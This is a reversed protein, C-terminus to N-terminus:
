LIVTQDNAVNDPKDIRIESVRVVYAKNAAPTFRLLVNEGSAVMNMARIDRRQDDATSLNNYVNFNIRGDFANAGVNFCSYKNDTTNHIEVFYKMSTFNTYNKTSITNETPSAAASIETRTANLETDGIVLRTINSTNEDAFESIGVMTTLTQITVATNANPTYRLKIVGANQIIEFEGVDEGSDMNGFDTYIMGAGNCLFNYEEVEKHDAGSHSVIINGSKFKSADIDQITVTSPSASAAFVSGVGSKVINAYSTTGISVQKGIIEKYFTVDYTLTTNYPSFSVSVINGNQQLIFEGLDFADALDSYQNLYCEDGNHFVIFECYQTTNYALQLAADLVVQAHYKIARPGTPNAIDFADIEVTRLLNPDSYFQPSIDDIELVRNGNCLLSDGFRTSNFVVENSVSLDPAPDEYVLDHDFHDKLAGGGDILVVSKSATGIAVVNTATTGLSVPVSSILLDSHKKFGAIHALSDVPESWSAIGVQSKLSYAFQQYYDSDQLRQNFDSLKGTDKEWGFPKNHYVGVDFHGTYDELKDITGGANSLQGTLSEGTSFGVINDVRLVNRAKGEGSIVKAKKGRSTIVTEGKFFEGEKLEVSFKAIDTKNSVTGFKGLNYTGPNESVEYTITAQDELGTAQNVGTLTFYQYGYTSSNYGHGTTVGINEVFVEDGVVFPIPAAATYGGEPTQLTLTVNPDSYNATVIGVGNTNNIAFLSNDGSRLNGGGSVVQVDSVSAGTLSVKFQTLSNEQSTKTNYLVLDPATLYKGGTSTIAVSDVSFNDKLFVVQPMAAQPQLTKDSPYDFGIDVLNVKDLKGIDNGHAEILASSGSTTAVSVQPIDKFGVGGSVLQVQAIPGNDNTSNTTYSIYASQTTYGVREPKHNINFDFSKETISSITGSSTFKSSNVIIKTFNDIDENTEIIKSIDQSNLKYYLVKPVQPTFRISATGQAQGHAAFYSVEVASVGSGVFQKKYNSDEYFELKTNALSPSSVDFELTDGETVNIMPNVSNGISVLRTASNYNLVLSSTGTSVVSMDITDTPRLSHADKTTATVKIINIDSTVKGRQTTFFHTNGIGAQDPYFFVRESSSRIGAQTTVIGVLNSDVVSAYVQTPLTATWGSDTGVGPAQYSISTGEGPNYSLEEGHQFTHRPLFITQTPIKIAGFDQTSITHGIGTGASVGSGVVNAADFYITDNTVTKEAGEQTFTFRTPLVHIESFATHAVGSTGNQARILDLENQLSDKGYVKFEEHDIRVIDNIHFINIDDTIRVSTTLGANAGIAAIATAIGSSINTVTIVREGELIKHKDSSVNDVSLQTGSLLNHPVSTIGTVQGNSYLLTTLPFTNVTSTLSAIQPGFIKIVNGIAGFGGTKSNDFVLNDGVSYENGGDIIDVGSVAGSSTTIIKSQLNTGKQSNSVFEYSNINYPKTNRVLNYSLPDVDQDFDFSRNLEEVKSRFSDGIVYPFVPVRALNFPSGPNSVLSSQVTTFYAYVGNPYEPTVSFRGNHEDLDGSGATYTYDEVFFGAPYKSISPGNTREGTLKLYSPKIYDLGGGGGAEKYVYPGYIPNGDYAWGLIPSHEADNDGLYSRLNRPVYYNVYPNGLDSDRQVEYFGDDAFVDGIKAYREVQNITWEKINTSYIAGEGPTRAKVATGSQTYNGGKEIMDISVIQGNAVNAKAKAGVGDGTIIIDPTSFFDSGGSKIIIQDIRGNIIFPQLFAKSGIVTNVDPKLNDNIVTSGFDNGPNSVHCDIVEGRIIPTATANFTTIGQRGNLVVSVPPDQFTHTGAGTSTINVHDTLSTSISVRFQDDNIKICYYEANNTLGGAAGISASYKIKEGSNFGHKNINVIDVFTNIGAITTINRNFFIGSNEVNVKDVKNRRRTTTFKHIGGGNQSIPITGIGALADTKSESLHFEHDNLKVIFYPSTDILTGPTTGIGIPTTSNTTYIVEEADLLGHPSSFVFRDTATNVIGGQTTSDFELTQPTIKMVAKAVAEDNNGGSVSVTPIDLYDLGESDVLIEQLEGKMQAIASAGVGTHGLQSVSLRPPNIVDYDDGSNLVDISEITGFSVRDTAKYSYIEVGNVFLGVGGQTTKTFDDGYEPEPFKRLLKQAGLDTGAFISPTLKHISLSAVDTATFATIYEESRINEPTYALALTNPTLRKVYYAEGDTLNTLTNGSTKNYTVLDGDYYNHDTISIVTGQSSSASDFIRERKQPNISWHPLSNSAVYVNRNDDVYTNQVDATAHIQTKIKRRIFYIKQPSLTGCTVSVKTDTLLSVVTGDLINNDGDVVEIEDGFYLAHPADLTIEYSSSSLTKFTVINYKPAVNHIWTNWRRTDQEKGITKVNINSDQIQNKATGTFKNLLGVVEVEVRQRTDGDIFAYANLGQTITHGIGIINAVTTVGTFQTYNKGTYPLTTEGITISGVTSFGVTSDVNIVNAGVPSVTTAYTKNKQIFEGFTTGESISFTYYTEGNIISSEVNYISGSTQPNNDQFLTQGSLKTADGSVQKGILIDNVVYDADSPRIMFNAPQIMEVKEGYLAGFLLKFGEETGKTRYFDKAQRIFNSKSVKGHLNRETFGPLVQSKLKKYFNQLFVNSLNTVHGREPHTSVGTQTFTLFEPQNTKNNNEIGSFGRRCGVFSTTGIGAYSIIENGIKLLGFQNPWGDTSDVYITTDRKSVPSTLSTFGILNRNNLFDLSKYDVLNEAIDVTGGQHEQSIYYASLFEGFLPNDSEIFEPVQNRVVEHIKVRSISTEIM